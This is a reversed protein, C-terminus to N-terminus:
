KCQSVNIVVEQLLKVIYDMYDYLISAQDMKMNAFKKEVESSLVAYFQTVTHILEEQKKATLLENINYLFACRILESINCKAKKAADIILKKEEVSVRAKILQNKNARNNNM